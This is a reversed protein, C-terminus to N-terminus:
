SSATSVSSVSWRRSSSCLFTRLHPVIEFFTARVARRSPTMRLFDHPTKLAFSMEHGPDSPQPGCDESRIVADDRRRAQDDANGRRRRSTGLDQDGTNGPQHGTRHRHRRPFINRDARLRIGLLGVECAFPPLELALGIRLTLFQRLKIGLAPDIDGQGSADGLFQHLLVREFRMCAVLEANGFNGGCSRDNGGQRRSQSKSDTRHHWEGHHPQRRRVLEHQEDRCRRQQEEGQETCDTGLSTSRVHQFGRDTDGEPTGKGHRQRCAYAGQDSGGDLRAASLNLAETHAWVPLLSRCTGTANSVSLSRCARCFSWRCARRRPPPPM